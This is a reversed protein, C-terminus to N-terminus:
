IMGSALTNPPGPGITAATDNSRLRGALTVNYLTGKRIPSNRAPAIRTTYESPGPKMRAESEEISHLGLRPQMTFSNTHEGTNAWTNYKGPGPGHLPWSGERYREENRPFRKKITINCKTPNQKTHYLMGM